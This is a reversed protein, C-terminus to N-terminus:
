PLLPALRKAWALMQDQTLPSGTRIGVEGRTGMINVMLDGRFLIVQQWSERGGSALVLETGDPLQLYSDLPSGSTMVGLPVTVGPDMQAVHVQLVGDAGSLIVDSPSAGGARSIVEPSAETVGSPATAMLASRVKDM